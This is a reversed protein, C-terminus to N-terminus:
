EAVATKWLNIALCTVAVLGIMGSFGFAAQAILASGPVADILSSPALLPLVRCAAATSGLWFTADVLRCQGCM